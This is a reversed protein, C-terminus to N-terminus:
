NKVNTSNEIVKKRYEEDQFTQCIPSVLEQYNTKIKFCTCINRVTYIKHTEIAKLGFASFIKNLNSNNLIKDQLFKERKENNWTVDFENFSGGAEFYGDIGNSSYASINASNLAEKIEKITLYNGNEKLAIQIIKSIILSIICIGIHAVIEEMDKIFIPRINLESKLVRFYLETKELSQYANIIDEAQLEVDENPKKYITGSFGALKIKREIEDLNLALAKVNKKTKLDSSTSNEVNFTETKVLSQWGTKESVAINENNLIALQAKIIDKKIDILDKKRRKESFTVLLSTKISIKKKRTKKLGKESIYEEDEEVTKTFPIIKYKIAKEDKKNKLDDDEEDDYIDEIDRDIDVIITKYDEKNIVQEEIDKGLDFISSPILFGISKENLLRFNSLSDIENDAVFISNKIEYKEKMEEIFPKFISFDITNGTFVEYDMPIGETDMVLGIVFLPYDNRRYKSINQNKQTTNNKDLNLFEDKLKIINSIFKEINDKNEIPLNIEEKLINHREVDLDDLYKEFYINTSNFFILDGNRKRLKNVKSNIHKFIVDKSDYFFKLADTVVKISVDQPSFIEYISKSFTYKLSGPDVIKSSCLYSLIKNYDKRLNNDEQANVIVSSIDLVKDWVHVALITSYKMNISNTKTVSKSPINLLQVTEEPAIKVTNRQVTNYKAKLDNLINPNDEELKALNGFSQVIKEVRVSNNGVKKYFYEILYVYTQGRTKKTRIAMFNNNM